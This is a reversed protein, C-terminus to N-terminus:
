KCARVLLETPRFYRTCQSCELMEFLRQSPRIVLYDKNTHALPIGAVSNESLHCLCHQHYLLNFHIVLGAMCSEAFHKLQLTQSSCIMLGQSAAARYDILDNSFM